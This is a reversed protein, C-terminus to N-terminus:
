FSTSASRSGTLSALSQWALEKGKRGARYWDKELNDRHRSGCTVCVSSEPRSCWTPIRRSPSKSTPGRLDVDFAVGGGAEAHGIPADLPGVEAWGVALGTRSGLRFVPRTGTRRFPPVTRRNPPGAKPALEYPSPMRRSRKL